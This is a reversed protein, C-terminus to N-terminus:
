LNRRVSAITKVLGDELSTVPSWNLIKRARSIDPRRRTPDDLPLPQSITPLKKGLIKELLSVLGLIPIEQDNGLNIVESSTNPLFMAKMIGDVLDAVYCFSRTQSGTGYITLPQDSLAQMIFTSVVRGDDSQMRPGYTNFIRIIRADLSYVRIASFVYAEGCRKGEDYCSRPGTTAVNGRYSEQQPHVLPEGYVESSSAFLFKAQCSRAHNLILNTGYTNVMLTEFPFRQYWRPSAPSALHFIYGIDPYEKYPEVVDHKVFHFSPTTRLHDINAIKGTLLNDFCYVEYGLSLLQECLHSGVFGAGGTVLCAQNHKSQKM